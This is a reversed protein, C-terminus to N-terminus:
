ACGQSSGHSSFLNPQERVSRSANNKGDARHETSYPRRVQSSKRELADVFVFNDGVSVPNSVLHFVEESLRVQNNRANHFSLVGQWTGVPQPTCSQAL